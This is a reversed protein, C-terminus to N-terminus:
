VRHGAGYGAALQALRGADGLPEVLVVDAPHRGALHAVHGHHDPLLVAVLRGLGLDLVHQGLQASTASSRSPAPTHDKSRTIRWIGSWKWAWARSGFQHNRRKPRPSGPRSRLHDLVEPGLAAQHGGEGHQGLGDPARVARSRNQPVVRTAWAQFRARADRHGGDVAGAAGVHQGAAVHGGVGRGVRAERRPQGLRDVPEVRTGPGAPYTVAVKQSADRYKRGSFPARM